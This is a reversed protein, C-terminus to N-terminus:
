SLVDKNNSLLIILGILTGDNKKKTNAQKNQKINIIRSLYVTIKNKKTKPIKM